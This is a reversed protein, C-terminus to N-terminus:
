RRSGTGARRSMRPMPKRVASRIAPCARSRSSRSSGPARRCRSCARRPSPRRASRAAPSPVRGRHPSAARCGPAARAVFRQRELDRGARDDLFRRVSRRADEERPQVGSLPGDGRADSAERGAAHRPLRDVRVLGDRPHFRLQRHRERRRLHLRHAQRDRRLEEHDGAAGADALGRQHVRMRAIRPTRCTRIASHAGVPRAALRSESVVPRSAFVIWRSSSTSGRLPPKLRCSACGSSHSRSTTSSVEITSTGSICASSRATGGCAATIRTPSTSWSGDTPGPWTSASM